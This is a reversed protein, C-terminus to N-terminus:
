QPRCDDLVARIKATRARQDKIAEVQKLAECLDDCPVEFRQLLTIVNEDRIPKQQAQWVQELVEYLRTPCRKVVFLAVDDSVHHLPVEGWAVWAIALLTVLVMIMTTGLGTTTM